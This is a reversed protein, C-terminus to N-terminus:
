NLDKIIIISDGRVIIKDYKNNSGRLLVNTLVLNLHADFSELKGECIDGNKLHISIVNGRNKNLVDLPKELKM